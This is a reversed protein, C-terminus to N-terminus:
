PTNQAEPRRRQTIETTASATTLRFLAQLRAVQAATLPPAADVVEAIYRARDAVREAEREAATMKVWRVSGAWTRM